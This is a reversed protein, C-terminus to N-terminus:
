DERADKIKIQARSAARAFMQLTSSSASCAFVARASFTILHAARNTEVIQNRESTLCYDNSNDRDIRPIKAKSEGM